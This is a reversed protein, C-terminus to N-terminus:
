FSNVLEVAYKAKMAIKLPQNTFGANIIGVLQGRNNFVPSGSSGPTIQINHGFNYRERQQSIKGDMNIAYIGQNTSATLEGGPFGITFIDTGDKYYNDDVVAKSLDVVHNVEKPLSHSSIQIVAVDIEKENSYCHIDSCAIKTGSSKHTGNLYIGLSEKDLIGEVTVKGVYPLLNINNTLTSVTLQREVEKRIFDKIEAMEESLYDWPVVVHRNTVIKGDNSVIFGTGQGVFKTAQYESEAFVAYPNKGNKDVQIGAFFRWFKGDIKVQFYYAKEILVVSKKYTEYIREPTWPRDHMYFVVGFIVAAVLGTAILITKLYKKPPQPPAVPKEFANQWDLPYKNAILVRDGARLIQSSIKQGNVFTGNASSSDAIVIDGNEKEILQAHSSSVDGHNLVIDNDATRGITKKSKVASVDGPFSPSPPQKRENLKKVWDVTQNGAKVVDSATIMTEAVIRRGNVFTGNMSNLDKLKVEGSEFITILAHQSSVMVDNIVIDNSSSRGIKLSKM